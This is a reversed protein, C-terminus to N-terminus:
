SDVNVANLDLIREGMANAVVSKITDGPIFFLGSIISQMLPLHNSVGVWVGGLLDVVIVASLWLTVFSAKDTRSVNSVFSSILPALLWGFLYGGTPGLLVAPGATHSSLVPLGLVVLLLFTGITIFGDKGNFIKVIIMVGINQLVLPVPIFGLPIAPLFGLVILLAVMLSMLATKKM